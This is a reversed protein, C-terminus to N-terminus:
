SGTCPNSLLFNAKVLYNQWTDTSASTCFEDDFGSGIRALCASCAKRSTCVTSPVTFTLTQYGPQGPLVDTHTNYTRQPYQEYQYIGECDSDYFCLYWGCDSTPVNQCNQTGLTGCVIQITQAYSHEALVFLALIAVFIVQRM